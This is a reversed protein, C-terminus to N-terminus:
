GRQHLKRHLHEIEINLEELSDETSQYESTIVALEMNETSDETKNTLEDNEMILKDIEKQLLKEETQTRMYEVKIEKLQKKQQIQKTQLNLITTHHKQINAKLQEPDENGVSEDIVVGPNKAQLLDTEDQILKVQTQLTDRKRSLIDQIRKHKRVQQDYRAKKEQYIKDLEAESLQELAEKRLM